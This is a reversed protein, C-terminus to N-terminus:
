KMPGRESGWPVEFDTMPDHMADEIARVLNRGEEPTCFITHVTVLGRSAHRTMIAIEGAQSMRVSARIERDLIRGMPGAVSSM